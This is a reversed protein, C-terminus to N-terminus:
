EHGIEKDARALFIRLADLARDAYSRPEISRLTECFEIILRLHDLEDNTMVRKSEAPQSPCQKLISRIEADRAKEYDVVEMGDEGTDFYACAQWVKVAQEFSLASGGEVGARNDGIPAAYVIRVYKPCIGKVREFEGLDVDVWAEGIMQTQYIPEQGTAAAPQRAAQWRAGEIFSKPDHADTSALSLDFADNNTM